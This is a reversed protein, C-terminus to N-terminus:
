ARSSGYYWGHTSGSNSFDEKFGKSIADFIIKFNRNTMRNVIFSKGFIEFMKKDYPIPKRVKGDVDGSQALKRKMELKEKSFEETDFQQLDVDGAGGFKGLHGFSSWQDFNTIPENEMAYDFTQSRVTRQESTVVGITLLGYLSFYWRFM